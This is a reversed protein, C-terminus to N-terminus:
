YVATQILPSVFDRVLLIFPTQDWIFKMQFVIKTIRESAITM